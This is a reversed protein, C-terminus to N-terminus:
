SAPALILPLTSRNGSVMTAALDFPGPYPEVESVISATLPRALGQVQIYPPSGGMKECRAHEPGTSPACPGARDVQSLAVVVHGVWRGAAVTPMTPPYLSSLVEPSAYSGPAFM